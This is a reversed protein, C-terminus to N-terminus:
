VADPDAGTREADAQADARGVPENDEVDRASDDDVADLGLVPGVREDDNDDRAVGPGIPPIPPRGPFTM